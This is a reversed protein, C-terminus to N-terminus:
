LSFSSLTQIKVITVGVHNYGGVDYSHSLTGCGCRLWDTHGVAVGCGTLTHGVVVGCGTLTQVV